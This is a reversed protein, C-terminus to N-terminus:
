AAAARGSRGALLRGWGVARDREGAALPGGTHEVFFSEEGVVRYGKRRLRRVVGRAASGTLWRPRNFRTDFGAVAGGGPPVEDLWERLSRSGPLVDPYGHGGGPRGLTRRADQRAMGHGHTPGGVVLLEAQGCEGPPVEDVTGFRVEGAGALGEVIGEAVAKTNGFMSEYVVVVKMEWVGTNGGHEVGERGAGGTRPM